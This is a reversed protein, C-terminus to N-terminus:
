RKHPKHHNGTCKHKHNHKLQGVGRGHKHPHRHKCKKAGQPGSTGTVTSPKKKVENGSSVSISSLAFVMLAACAMLVVVKSLRQWRSGAM